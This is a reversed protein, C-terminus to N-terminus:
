ISPRRLRLPAEIHELAVQFEASHAGPYAPIAPTIDAADLPQRQRLLPCCHFPPRSQVSCRPSLLRFSAIYTPQPEARYM